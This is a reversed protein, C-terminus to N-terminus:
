AESDAGLVRLEDAATQRSAARALDLPTRGRDDRANIEAGAEVLARITERGVGRAAVLHLATQGDARRANPDAGHQLWVKVRAGHGHNADHLLQGKDIDWGNALLLEIMEEMSRSPMHGGKGRNPDAGHDLLM